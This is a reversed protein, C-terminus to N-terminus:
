QGTKPTGRPPKEALRASPAVVPSRPSQNTNRRGAVGTEAARGPPSPSAVHAKTLSRLPTRLVPSAPSRSLRKTLMRYAHTVSGFRNRSPYRSAGLM